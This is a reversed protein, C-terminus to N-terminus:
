APGPSGTSFANGNRVVLARRITGARLPDTCIGAGGRGGTFNCGYRSISLRGGFFRLGQLLRAPEELLEARQDKQCCLVRTGLPLSLQLSQQVPLSSQGLLQDVGQVREGQLLLEGLLHLLM